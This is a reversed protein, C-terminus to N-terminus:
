TPTNPVPPEVKAEGEDAQGTEHEIGGAIAHLLVMGGFLVSIIHSSGVLVTRLLLVKVSQPFELDSSSNAKRKSIKAALVKM